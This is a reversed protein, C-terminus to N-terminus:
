YNSASAAGGQMNSTSPAEKRITAKVGQQKLFLLAQQRQTLEGSMIVILNGLLTEQVIDVNGFLITTTVQFKSFLHAILPEETRNGLYTLEVLWQNSQLTGLSRSSSITALAQELQNATRIFKKTLDCQPQSFLDISTGREIIEGADMVAVKHCIEKVVAMEHTILVITLGLEQNLRKLLQLIQSTTQPDLASTAEDCLLIEPENALARAIAVRQKQGGSLQAPYATQKDLLGVLALLELVKQKIAEKSKGCYKLSFAVNEYITRNNMLNFQQFIMGIAKRQQRLQKASLTTLEVGAVTVTGSTPKQLFNITRVLTSKGAGSFGVIGYIEGKQVHLNVNKVALVRQGNKTFNVAVDKLVIMM